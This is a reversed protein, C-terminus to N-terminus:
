RMVFTGLDSYLFNEELNMDSWKIHISMHNLTDEFYFILSYVNFFFVIIRCHGAASNGLSYTNILM